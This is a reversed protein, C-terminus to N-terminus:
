GPMVKAPTWLNQISLERSEPKFRAPIVANFWRLTRRCGIRRQKGKRSEGDRMEIFYLFPAPAAKRSVFHIEVEEEFQM